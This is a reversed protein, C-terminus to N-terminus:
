FAKKEGKKSEQEKKIINQCLKLSRMEELIPWENYDKITIEKKELVEKLIKCFENKDEKLASLGLKLTLKKSSFDCKLINEKVQEFRGTRKLSLWYNLKAMDRIEESSSNDFMIFEAIQESVYYHKNLLSKYVIDNLLFTSKEKDDPEFHKWIKSVLYIGLAEIFSISDLIYNKNTEAAQGKKIKYKEILRESVKSIYDSNVIGRNHVFINRRSNIETFIEKNRSYFDMKIGTVKELFKFIEEHAEHLLNDILKSVLYKRAEEIKSIEQLENFNLSYNELNIAKPYNESIVHILDAILTEFIVILNILTSKTVLNLLTTKTLLKEECM